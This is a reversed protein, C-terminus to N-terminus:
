WLTLKSDAKNCTFTKWLIIKRTGFSLFVFNLFMDTISSEHHIVNQIRTQLRSVSDTKFM